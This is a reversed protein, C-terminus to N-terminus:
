ASQLENVLTGVPNQTTKQAVTTLSEGRRLMLVAAAVGSIVTAWFFIKRM